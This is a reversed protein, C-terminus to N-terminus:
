TKFLEGCAQKELSFQHSSVNHEVEWFRSLLHNLDSLSNSLTAHFSVPFSPGAVVNATSNGGSIVWGFHTKKLVSQNKSQRIQGSCIIRWFLETGILMDICAPVNFNPDALKINAPITV